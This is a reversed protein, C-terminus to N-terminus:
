LLVHDSVMASEQIKWNSLDVHVSAPKSKNYLLSSIHGSEEFTRVCMLHLLSSFTRSCM